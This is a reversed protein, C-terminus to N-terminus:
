DMPNIKFDVFDFDCGPLFEFRVNHKGSINGIEFNKEIIDDSHPFELIERVVGSDNRFHLHISDNANRTRGCLTVSKTGKTFDFNEFEIFVNNGIGEIMEETIKYTDGWMTTYDVASVKEYSMGDFIFGGFSIRKDCEEFEFCVDHMGSIRKDLKYSNEIYTQWVFNAQYTFEGVKEANDEWPMGLWLTFKIPDDSHWNIISVTFGNTGTKGFDVNRFGVANRGDREINVGGNTVENLLKKSANYLSGKVLAEYPNVTVNGMGEIEFELESITEPYPKGNRSYCRLRFVGDGMAKVSVENGESEVSAINTEVGNITVACWEIEHTANEPYIKAKVIATDRNADLKQVDACIEIKRVPIETNEESCINETFADSTGRVFEAEAVELETKAESLGESTVMVSVTGAINKAAIVAMLRGGFLKKSTGKYEDYDTSDGSDLGVLRGAGSVTVNMRNRANAVFNGDKDYASIDVFVLDTGDAKLVSKDPTLKVSATEGFSRQVDEAVVNGNNDYAVAKIEGKEYPLQWDASYNGKVERKGLSRGNIFLEVQPQNTYVVVDILQGDNFDWYPMLKLVIKDTWAAQYLYFSDKKYGATDVQGYYSNKTSYPSPEGIYDFGTWIFQGACFGTDRDAIISTQATRDGVGSRCNGLSSCQKDDHTIYAAARPFHYVSRSQVRSATESGYICWHPYKEHHEDYLYECYNYGAVDLMGSCKQAGEWPIYNSGMTTYANKLYDHVRVEDCLMKTVQAGRDSAHTDYIENGVSWMIVSPHNRDRRIWSAVDIKYWDDFFRAYDYDTKKLEWMDFAESDVLIGMEDCLEMLEVAPMNHSTRIANVGMEKMIELQRKIATRNVAAGLAGLDHHNCVGHLKVHRGNLFFGKDATFEIERFGIKCSVSDLIKGDKEISTELTYLYPDDIDWAKAGDVSFDTIKGDSDLINVFINGDMDKIVYRVKCDNTMKETECFLNINWVGHDKFASFYVSDSVIYASEHEIMYIDRYIGAGSYWRSNPAEHRVQVVIENKGKCVFDTIDIEFSSYGYKWEGAEKGNVYVTCDQYVGEFYLKRTKDTDSLEFFKKYWGMSTQYLDKTQWILWDHPIDVRAWGEESMACGYGCNVDTKKFSWGDNFLTKMHVRRYFNLTVADDFRYLNYLRDMYIDINFIEM